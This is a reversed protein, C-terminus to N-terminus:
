KCHGECKKGKISCSGEQSCTKHEYVKKMGMGCCGCSGHTCKELQEKTLVSRADLHTHVRNKKMKTKLDGAATIKGDIASRNPESEHLLHTLELELIELDARMRITSKKHEFKIEKLREIQADSLGMEESCCLYFREACGFAGHHSGCHHGVSKCCDVEITKCIEGGTGEGKVRMIKVEDDDSICQAHAFAVFTFLALIIGFISLKKM